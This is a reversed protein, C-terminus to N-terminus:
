RWQGAESTALMPPCSPARAGTATQAPPVERPPLTEDSRVSETFCLIAGGQAAVSDRAIEM